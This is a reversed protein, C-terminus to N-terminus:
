FDIPPVLTALCFGALQVGQQHTIGISRGDVPVQLASQLRALFQRLQVAFAIAALCNTVCNLNVELTIGAEFGVSRCVKHGCDVDLQSLWVEGTSFENCKREPLRCGQGLM